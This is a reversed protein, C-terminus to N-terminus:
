RPFACLRSPCHCFCKARTFSQLRVSCDELRAHPPSYCLQLGFILLYVHIPLPPFLLLLLLLLLSAPTAHLGRWLAVPAYGHVWLVQIEQLCARQVANESGKTKCGSFVVASVSSPLARASRPACSCACQCVPRALRRRCASCRSHPSPYHM